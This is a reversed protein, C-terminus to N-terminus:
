SWAFTRRDSCRISRAARWEGQQVQLQCPQCAGSHCMQTCSHEACNLFAGCVASCRLVAGQGCRMPQSCLCLEMLVVTDLVWLFPPKPFCMLVCRGFIRLYPPAFLLRISRVQDEWLYLIKNHLGSMTSLTWPSMLQLSVCFM